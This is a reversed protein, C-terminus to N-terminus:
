GDRDHLSAEIQRIAEDLNLKLAALKSPSVPPNATKGQEISSHARRYLQQRESWTLQGPKATYLIAVFRAVSAPDPQMSGAFGLGHVPAPDPRETRFLPERRHDSTPQAAPSSEASLPGTTPSARTFTEFSGAPAAVMLREIAAIRSDIPPHTAFLGAFSVGRSDFLMARLGDISLELTSLGSIKRLANILAQPKNTLAVAGADAMFERERSLAFHVVLSAVTAVFGVAYAVAKGAWFVATYTVQVLLKAGPMPLLSFIARYINLVSMIVAWFAKMLLDHLMPVTGVLVTAIVVLRVDHNQIHALEHGMVTELEDDDLVDILGTTLTVSYAGERLGSAFANLTETEIVRLAPLRMGASTCLREFIAWVRPLENRRLLRAGTARDIVWQHILYGIPLWIIMVVLMIALAILAAQISLALPNPRSSLIGVGFTVLFVLGPVVFPFSAVLLISRVTNSQVAADVQQRYTM